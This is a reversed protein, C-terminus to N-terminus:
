YGEALQFFISPEAMVVLLFEETDQTFANHQKHKVLRQELYAQTGLM